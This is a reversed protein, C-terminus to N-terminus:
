LDKLLYSTIRRREELDKFEFTLTWKNGVRRLKTRNYELGGHALFNRESFEESIKLASAGEKGRLIQIVQALTYEDREPGLSIFAEVEEKVRGAELKGMERIAIQPNIFGLGKGDYLKVLESPVLTTGITGLMAELTLRLRKLTAILLPVQSAADLLNQTRYIRIANEKLEFLFLDDRYYYRLLKGVFDKQLGELNELTLLEWDHSTLGPLLAWNRFFLYASIGEKLTLRLLPLEREWELSLKGQLERRHM